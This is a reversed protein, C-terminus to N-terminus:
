SVVVFPGQYVWELEFLYLMTLKITVVTWLNMGAWIAFFYGAKNKCDSRENGSEYFGVNSNWRSGVSDMGSRWVRIERGAIKINDKWPHM